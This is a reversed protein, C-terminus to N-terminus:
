QKQTDDDETTQTQEDTATKQKSLVKAMLKDIVGSQQLLAVILANVAVNIASWPARGALYVWFSKEILSKDMSIFDIFGMKVSNQLWLGFTNLGCLCVIYCIVTAIILNVLKPLKIKYILACIVGLLTTSIAIFVNYDGHPYIFHAILDGMFGVIAAPLIGFYIGTFFCIAVTFSISNTGSLPITFLNAVISLATLMAISTLKFTKNM